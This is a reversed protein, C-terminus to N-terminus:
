INKSNTYIKKIDLSKREHFVEGLIIIEQNGTARNVCKLNQATCFRVWLNSAFFIFIIRGGYKGNRTHNTCKTQNKGRKVHNLAEVILKQNVGCLNATLRECKKHCNVDCEPERTEIRNKFKLNRRPRPQPHIHNHITGM